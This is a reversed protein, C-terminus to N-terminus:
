TYLQRMPSAVGMAEWKRGALEPRSAAASPPLNNGMVHSFNVGGREFVLGEEIVRSIGGGGDPREWSDSIFQHGDAAELAAVINAQLSLLYNKVAQTDTMIHQVPYYDEFLLVPQVYDL